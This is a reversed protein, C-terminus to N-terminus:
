GARRLPESAAAPLVPQDLLYSLDTGLAALVETLSTGLIEHRQLRSWQLCTQNWLVRLQYSDTALRLVEIGFRQPPGGVFQLGSPLNWVRKEALPTDQWDLDMAPIHPEFDADFRCCIIRPEASHATSM